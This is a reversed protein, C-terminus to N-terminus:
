LTWLVGEKGFLEAPHGSRDDLGGICRQYAHLLEHELLLPVGSAVAVYIRRESQEFVGAVRGLRSDLWPRARWVFTIDSLDCTSTDYGRSELAEAVRLATESELVGFPVPIESPERDYQQAVACAGSLCLSVCAALALFGNRNQSPRFPGGFFGAINARGPPSSGGVTPKSPGYHVGSLPSRLYSFSFM